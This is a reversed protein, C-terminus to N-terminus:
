KSIRCNHFNCQMKEALESYSDEWIAGNKILNEAKTRTRNFIHLEYGKSLLHGAMSSGMVGTGIFGLIDKDSM